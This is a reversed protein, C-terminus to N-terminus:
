SVKVPNQGSCNLLDDPHRTRNDVKAPCDSAITNPEPTVLEGFAVFDNQEIRRSVSVLRHKDIWLTKVYSTFRIRMNSKAAGPWMEAESGM